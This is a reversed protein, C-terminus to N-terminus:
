VLDQKRTFGIYHGGKKNRLRIENRWNNNITDVYGSISSSRVNKTSSNNGYLAKTTVTDGVKVGQSASKSSGGSSSGVGARRNIEAQVADYQSGLSQKRADGNGHLGQEVQDALQSITNRPGASSIGARRNIEAQVEGYKSGLSDKRADGNGHKGAEVEDALQSISKTGSSGKKAVEIGARRNIEEQVANYKNGLSQKRADGNGHLGQEVEDALQAVSKDSPASPKATPTSPKSVNTTKGGNEADIMAQVTNGLSLFYKIKQIFYDQVATNAGHIDQSLHPCSTSSFHRHLKVTTRNPTLGYFKLDEAAQRLTMDENELFQARTIDGFEPGRSQIVEFGIYSANGGGTVQGDGAHYASRNTNVYRAITHRDIYYHAIGLSPSRGDLWDEYALASMRGYDNHIIVGKPNMAKWGGWLTKNHIKPQNVM